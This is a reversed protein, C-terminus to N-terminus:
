DFQYKISIYAGQENERNKVRSNEGIAFDIFIISDEKDKWTKVYVKEPKTKYEDIIEKIRKELLSNDKLSDYKVGATIIYLLERLMEDMPMSQVRALSFFHNNSWQQPPFKKTIKNFDQRIKKEDLYELRVGSWITAREVYGYLTEKGTEKEVLDNDFLSEVLSKM